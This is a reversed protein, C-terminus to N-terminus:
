KKFRQIQTDLILVGLVTIIIATVAAASEMRISDFKNTVEMVSSEVAWLVNLLVVLTGGGIIGRRLTMLLEIMDGESNFSVKFSGYRLFYSGIITAGMVLVVADYSLISVPSYINYFFMIAWSIIVFGILRLIVVAGNFVSNLKVAVAVM